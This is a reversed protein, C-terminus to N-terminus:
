QLLLCLTLLIRQLGLERGDPDYWEEPTHAGGGQGGAGISVAEMGMSLPINADTSACDLHARIHLHADVARLYPLLLSEEPIVGGPRAGIERIRAQVRGATARENELSVAREMAFTLYQSLEEIREQEESRVDLKARASNPISNVSIGGEIMGFNFSVRPSVAFGDEFQGETFFHVGRSLAHVPNATGHDSWSHGGPGNVTVEFRRSALARCTIHDTGPGDLVLYTRIKGALPSQKCLFRMGSLNGEGEEGVNAILIPSAACPAESKRLAAFALLAALGAGNDSVGPGRFRGDPSLSVDEVRKPALVTDLHATLAVFPGERRSDPFAVVNGARDMKSDWGLARFQAAMWEARKEEFFTPAAIRCLALHQETVWNRQAVLFKAARRVAPQSALEALTKAIKPDPKTKRVAETSLAM